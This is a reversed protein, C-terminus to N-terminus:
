EELAWSGDLADVSCFSLIQRYKSLRIAQVSVESSALRAILTLEDRSEFSVPEILLLHFNLNNFCRQSNCCPLLFAVALTPSSIIPCIISRPDRTVRLSEQRNTVEPIVSIQLYRTIVTYSSDYILHNMVLSFLYQDISRSFFSFFFKLTSALIISLLNKPYSSPGRSLWAWRLLSIM